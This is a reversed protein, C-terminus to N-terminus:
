TVPNTFDQSSGSLPNVTAGTSLSIVPSIATLDTGTPLEASITHATADVVSNGIQGPITLATIDNSTSVNEVSFEDFSATFQTGGRHTAFVGAFGMNNTDVLRGNFYNSPVTLSGLLTRASSGITHYAAVTLNTPDLVLELIVDEGLASLASQIQDSATSLGGSEVRLEINNNNNVDLKVFNDEDFGFWIGAQAGGGGTTINLLTSKIIFPSVSETVGVGLSNVQNNNGSSAPPDLYSIGSQSVIQLAGSSLTLLSPEYGNVLPNSIAIDGSRRAESHDLAMTFGTGNVLSDDLTNTVSGSFDLTFPVTVAIDDCALTSIPSCIASATGLDENLALVLTTSNNFSVANGGADIQTSNNTNDPHQVSMFLFRYDPSFTIGTPEAGAPVNGFIRVQPVAQTHGSAVVWIYSQNSGGDQLVWLNGDGDFALNDNGNSWNVATTGGSHTINYSTNGVFTEMQPVTTGTIPDSDQFRYVQNEDKVAFYIMGDPGIEVDEIGSFATAGALVSQDLTTNRETVTTNNLLIWNGSGNKSGSYVYLLGSSLDQATNAIFKYLYGPTSDAGQYVTRENAHIAVNEHAMNGLAWLKNGGIVTKTVPDIEINWGFDNYGDSNFDVFPNNIEESSIITGWPTVTGSCNAITNGVGSFDVGQSATTQWLQTTTNFNIDLISVGGPAAEANISLYGNESSGGIGVYGAFDNNVPVVGGQSLPDGSEIIKQFTHTSPIVFDSTQSSPTISNFDGIEQAQLQTSLFILLYFLLSTLLTIKKM